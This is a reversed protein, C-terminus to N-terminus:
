TVIANYGADVHHTEGTVGSSLDSLLYVAARGVEDTEINRRLPASEAVKDLIQDFGGVAMASLTRCPGASLSNVRIGLAGLDAALYRVCSELASKAVGMVNYGPAAKEAGYYSLALISGGSKMLPKARQAVAVLSYASIDLAEAFAARPTDVFTGPQLYERDAYAVSHVVFDLTGFDAAFSAFLRDLDADNSVDCARLWPEAFGGDALAKAVRREMKEGPLYPFGCTAGHEAANRAIHWAISRENAVGFVLGRKGELLKM